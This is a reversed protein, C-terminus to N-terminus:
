ILNYQKSYEKDYAEIHYWGAYGVYLLGRVSWNDNPFDKNYPPINWKGVKYKIM